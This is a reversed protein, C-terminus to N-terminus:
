RMVVRQLTSTLAEHARELRRTAEENGRALDEALEWVGWTHLHLLEHVLVGELEEPPVAAPNVRISAEFYEPMCSCDAQWGTPLKSTLKIRIEWNDLLLRPKWKAVLAVVQRRTITM